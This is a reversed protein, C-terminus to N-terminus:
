LKCYNKIKKIFLILDDLRNNVIDILINPDIYLYEHSLRNRIGIMKLLIDKENKDIIKKNFLIEATDSYYDWNENFDYSVIHAFIDLINQICLFLGREIIWLLDTNSQIQEKTLNQHKKLNEFDKLFTELHKEIIILDAM